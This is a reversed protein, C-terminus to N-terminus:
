RGNELVETLPRLHTESGDRILMGFREDTGLFVGGHDLPDGVGRLLGMWEAHLPANGDEQWRNLWTLTHRSWSEVLQTASVDACGEDYLATVDPTEGPAESTQLLALEWGVILWDPEQDASVDSSTVRFKGCKAGNVCILGDWGLHVAVEPPALAGLANQFGVACLPLMAMADQLPVEPAFVIAVRLRDAQINYVVTGADCGLAAMAQARDFPDEGGQVPHGTLLPPFVPQSM